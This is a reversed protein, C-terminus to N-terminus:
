LPKNGSVDFGGKVQTGDPLFYTWRIKDFNLSLTETPISDNQNPIGSQVRSIIVDDLMVM